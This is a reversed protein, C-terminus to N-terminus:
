FQNPVEGTSHPDSLHGKQAVAGHLSPNVSLSSTMWSACVWGPGTEQVVDPRKRDGGQCQM